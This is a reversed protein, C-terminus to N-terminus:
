EIKLPPWRGFLEANMFKMQPNKSQILKIKKERRWGKIEKERKIAKDVYKFVEFYLLYFAHYKGTFCSQDGKQEYHQMIRKEIDNTIGTYLVSCNYNTSIYVYFPM